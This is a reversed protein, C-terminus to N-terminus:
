KGPPAGLIRDRLDLAPALVRALRDLPGPRALGAYHAAFDRRYARCIAMQARRQERRRTVGVSAPHVRYRYLVEPLNAIGFRLVLRRWMETDQSYRVTEDYGGAAEFVARRMVVTPHLFPDRWAMVLRMWGPSTPVRLVGRERGEADIKAAWCGLVACDAHADLYAAQRALRDPASLDDADHRALLDAGAIRAAVNLAASLGRNEQRVVKLRPDGVGRLIDPTADTSGDDVVIVEIDGFTQAFLSDLSERLYREGNFVGVIVSVRPTM